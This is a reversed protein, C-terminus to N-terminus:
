SLHNLRARENGRAPHIRIWNECAAIFLALSGLTPQPLPPEKQTFLKYYNAAYNVILKYQEDREIDLGLEAGKGLLIDATLVRGGLDGGGEGQSKLNEGEVM